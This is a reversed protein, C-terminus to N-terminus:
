IGKKASPGPYLNYSFVEHMNELRNHVVIQKGDFHTHRFPPALFVIAKASFDAKLTDISLFGQLDALAAAFFAANAPAILLADYGYELGGAMFPLVILQQNKLWDFTANRLPTFDEQYLDDYKPKDTDNQDAVLLCDPDRRRMYDDPYNVVVGNKCRTVNAEMVSGIGELEYTVDFSDKHDPGFSLAILDQRTKPFILHKSGTLLNEVDSSLNLKKLYNEM